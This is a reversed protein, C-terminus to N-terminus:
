RGGAHEKAKVTRTDRIKPRKKAVPFFHAGVAKAARRDSESTIQAYVKLMVAVDTGGRAAATNPDVGSLMEAARAVHRLDHFHFGELGLAECAPV